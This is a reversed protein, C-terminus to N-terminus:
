SQSAGAELPGIHRCLVFHSRSACENSHSLIMPVIFICLGWVGVCSFSKLSRTANFRLRKSEINSECIVLADTYDILSMATTNPARSSVRDNLRGFFKVASTASSRLASHTIKPLLFRNRKEHFRRERRNLKETETACNSSITFCFNSIVPPATVIIIAEM